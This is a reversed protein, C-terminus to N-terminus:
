MTIHLLGGRPLRDPAKGKAKAVSETPGTEVESGFYNRKTPPLQGGGGWSLTFAALSAGKPHYIRKLLQTARPFFIATKFFFFDM